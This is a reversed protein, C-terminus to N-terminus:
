KPLSQVTLKDEVRAVNDVNNALQIARAKEAATHVTGSLTVVRDRTDVYATIQQLFVILMSLVFHGMVLRPSLDFLVVKDGTREIVVRSIGAHYLKKKIFKRIAIDEHLQEAYRRESFWNSQWGYLSGLRFGYPHVKQGM